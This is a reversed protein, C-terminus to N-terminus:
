AISFSKTIVDDDSLSTMFNSMKKSKKHNKWKTILTVGLNKLISSCVVSTNVTLLSIFLYCLTLIKDQSTIMVKRRGLNSM